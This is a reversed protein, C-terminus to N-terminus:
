TSYKLLSCGLCIRYINANVEMIFKNQRNQDNTNITRAIDIQDEDLHTDAYELAQPPVLLTPDRQYYFGTPIHFISPQTSM